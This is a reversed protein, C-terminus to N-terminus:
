CDTPHATPQAAGQVEAPTAAPHVLLSALLRTATACHFIFSMKQSSLVMGYRHHDAAQSGVIEM